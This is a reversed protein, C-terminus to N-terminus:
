HLLSLLMLMSLNNDARKLEEIDYKIKDGILLIFLKKENDELLDVDGALKIRRSKENGEYNLFIDKNGINGIVSGARDGLLGSSLKINVNYGFASGTVKQVGGVSNKVKLEVNEGTINYNNKLGYPISYDLDYKLIDADKLSFTDETVGSKFSVFTAEPQAFRKMNLQNPVSFKNGIPNIM